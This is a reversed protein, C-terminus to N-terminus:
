YLADALPVVVAYCREASTVRSIHGQGITDEVFCVDGPGFRRKEGDSVEVELEGSLIIVYQQRPVPHWTGFWGPPSSIFSVSDAKLIESISIPPAPPAYDVLSFDMKNDAFHSAGTSDTFVRSYALPEALTIEVQSDQSKTHCGFSVLVIAVTIMAKIVTM